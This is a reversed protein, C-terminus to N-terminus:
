EPILQPKRRATALCAGVALGLLAGDLGLSLLGGAITPAPAWGAASPDLGLSCVVLGVEMGVLTPLLLGLGGALPAKWLLGQQGRAALALFLGVAAYIVGGFLFGPWAHSLMTTRTAAASVSLLSPVLAAIPVGIGWAAVRSRRGRLRDALLLGLGVMAGRWIPSAVFLQKQSADPQTWPIILVLTTVWAALAALATVLPTFWPLRADASGPASAEADPPREGTGAGSTLPREGQEAVM